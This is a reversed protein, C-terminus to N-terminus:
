TKRSMQSSGDFDDIFGRALGNLQWVVAKLVEGQLVAFYRLLDGCELPGLLLHRVLELEHHVVLAFQWQGVAPV